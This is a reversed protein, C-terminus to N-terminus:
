GRNRVNVRPNGYISGYGSSGYGRFQNSGRYQEFNQSGEYNTRGFQNARQLQHYVWRLEHEREQITRKLTQNFQEIQRQERVTNRLKRVCERHKEDVETCIQRVVELERQCKELEPTVSGLAEQVGSTFSAKADFSPNRYYGQLFRVPLNALKKVTKQTSVDIRLM